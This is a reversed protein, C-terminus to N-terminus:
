YGDRPITGSASGKAVTHVQLFFVVHAHAIAREPSLQAVAHSVAAELPNSSARRHILLDRTWSRATEGLVGGDSNALDAAIRALTFFTEDRHFSAANSLIKAPPMEVHVLDRLGAWAHVNAM